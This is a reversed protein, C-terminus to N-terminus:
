GVGYRVLDLGGAPALRARHFHRPRRKPGGLRPRVSAVLNVYLTLPEGTKADVANERIRVAGAKRTVCPTRYGSPGQTCNFGNHEGLRGERSAIPRVAKTVRVAGPRDALILRSSVFANYRLRGIRTAFRGDAAIVEGDRLEPVAVSYVVRRRTGKRPRVPISRKLLEGVRLRTQPPRQAPVRVVNLRGKDQVVRGRPDDGGLVIRQGRKARRHHAGVVVNVHCRDPACPTKSGNVSAIGGAVTLTCHHNRDPRHQSCVVRKRGSIRRGHVGRKRHGSLVLRATVIPSFRYRRGICRRSRNVCTTSIQVEASVDLRDGDNLAGLRGPGISMVVRESARRTRAIGVSRVLESEQGTAILKATAVPAEVTPPNTPPLLEQLIPPLLGIVVAGLYRGLRGGLV